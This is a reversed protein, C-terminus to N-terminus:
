VLVYMSVGLIKMARIRGGYTSIRTVCVWSEVYPPTIFWGVAGTSTLRNKRAAPREEASFTIRAAM